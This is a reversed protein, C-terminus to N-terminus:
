SLFAGFSSVDFTKFIELIVFEMEIRWLIRRNSGTFQLYFYFKFFIALSSLLFILINKWYKFLLHFIRKTFIQATSTFHNSFDSLFPRFIFFSWKKQILFRWFARSFDPYLKLIKTTWRLCFLFFVVEHFISNILENYM